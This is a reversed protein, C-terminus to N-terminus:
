QLQNQVGLEELLMFRACRAVLDAPMGSISIGHNSFKALESYIDLAAELRGSKKLNRAMRILSGARTAPDKAKSFPRLTNIAREYDQDLFEAKEADAYLRSSAERGPSMVPYYLLTNEPWVRIEGSDVIIMLYDEAAPSFNGTPGDALKQEEESLVKELAVIMRDAAAERQEELRQAELARDQQLLRVGMWVLVMISVTAIGLFLVANYKSPRRWFRLSTM